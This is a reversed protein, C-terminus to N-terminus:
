GDINGGNPIISYIMNEYDLEVTINFNNNIINDSERELGGLEKLVGSVYYKSNNDDIDEVYMQIAEFTISGEPIDGVNDLVNATTINNKEVYESDLIQMISELDKDEVYSIYKNICSQVTFYATASKVKTKENFTRDQQVNNSVQNQNINSKSSIGLIMCIAIILLILLIGILILIKNKM